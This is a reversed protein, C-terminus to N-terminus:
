RKTSPGMGSCVGPPVFKINNMVVDNAVMMVSVPIMGFLQYQEECVLGPCGKQNSKVNSVNDSM